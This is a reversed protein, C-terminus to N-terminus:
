WEWGFSFWIRGIMYCMVAYILILSVGIFYDYIVSGVFIYKIMGLFNYGQDFYKKHLVLRYKTEFKM